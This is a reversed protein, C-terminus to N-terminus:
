CPIEEKDTLWPMKALEELGLRLVRCDLKRYERFPGGRTEKESFNNRTNVLHFKGGHQTITLAGRDTDEEESLMGLTVFDLDRDRDMEAAPAAPEMAMEARILAQIGAAEEELGAEKATKYADTLFGLRKEPTGKTQKDLMSMLPRLANAGATEDDMTSGFGPMGVGGVEGMYPEFPGGVGDDDAEEWGGEDLGDIAALAGGGGSGMESGGYGYSPASMMASMNGVPRPRKPAAHRGPQFSQLMMHQSTAFKAIHKLIRLVAPGAVDPISEVLFILMAKCHKVVLNAAQKQHSMPDSVPPTPTPPVTIPEAPKRWSVGMRVIGEETATGRVTLDVGAPVTLGKIAGRMGAMSVVSEPQIGLVLGPSRDFEGGDIANLTIGTATSENFDIDVIEADIDPRVSVVFAGPHRLDAIGVQTWIPPEEPTKGMLPQPPFHPGRDPHVPPQPWPAPFGDGLTPNAPMTPDTPQGSM